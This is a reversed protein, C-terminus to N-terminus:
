KNLKNLLNYQINHLYSMVHPLLLLKTILAFECIHKQAVLKPLQRKLLHLFQLTTPLQQFVTASVVPEFACSHTKAKTM